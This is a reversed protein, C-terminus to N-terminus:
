EKFLTVGTTGVKSRNESCVVPLRIHHMDRQVDARFYSSFVVFKRESPARKRM